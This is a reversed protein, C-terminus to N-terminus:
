TSLHSLKSLLNTISFFCWDPYHDYQHLLFFRIHSLKEKKKEPKGIEFVSPEKKLAERDICHWAVYSSNILIAKPRPLIM